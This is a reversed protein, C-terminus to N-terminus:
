CPAGARPFIIDEGCAPCKLSRYYDTDGLYDTHSDPKLESLEFEITSKCAKHTYQFVGKQTVKAM